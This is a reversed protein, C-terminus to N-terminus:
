TGFIHSLERQLLPPKIARPISYITQCGRRRLTLIEIGGPSAPLIVGAVVYRHAISQWRSPCPRKPPLSPRRHKCTQSRGAVPAQGAMGVSSAAPFSHILRRSLVKRPKEVNDVTGIINYSSVRDIFYWSYNNVKVGTKLSYSWDWKKM